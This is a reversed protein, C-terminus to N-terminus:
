CNTCQQDPVVLWDSGTDFVVDVIDGDQGVRVEGVFMPLTIGYNLDHDITTARLKKNSDKSSRMTHERKLQNVHAETRFDFETRTDREGFIFDTIYSFSSQQASSRKNLSRDMLHMSKGSVGETARMDISFPKGQTLDRKAAVDAALVSSLALKTYKM